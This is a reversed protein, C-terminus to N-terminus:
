LNGQPGGGHPQEPSGAADAAPLREDDGGRAAYGVDDDKGNEDNIKEKTSDLGGARVRAPPLIM